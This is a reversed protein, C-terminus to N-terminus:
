QIFGKTSSSRLQTDIGISKGKETGSYYGNSDTIRRNRSVGKGCNLVDTMYSKNKAENQNIVAPLGTSGPAAEPDPTKNAEHRENLRNIVTSAAGERFACKWRDSENLRRRESASLAIITDCIYHSMLQTATSNAQSGIVWHFTRNQKPHLEGALETPCRGSFAYGCFNLRAVAQWVMRVWPSSCKTFDIQHGTEEVEGPLDSLSLNYKALLASAREAALSAEHENSSDSLALLKQIKSAIAEPAFDTTM